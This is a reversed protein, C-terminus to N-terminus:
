QLEAATIFQGFVECRILVARCNTVNVGDPFDLSFNEYAKIPGIQLPQAYITPFGPGTEVYKPTLYLRYDAGPAITGDFWIRDGVGCLIEHWQVDCYPQTPFDFFIGDCLGSKKCADFGFWFQILVPAYHNCSLHFFM